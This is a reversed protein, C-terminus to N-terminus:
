DFLFFSLFIDPNVIERHNLRMASMLVRIPDKNGVLM